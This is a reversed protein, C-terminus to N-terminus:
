CKKGVLKRASGAEYDGGIMPTLDGRGHHVGAGADAELPDFAHGPWLEDFPPAM